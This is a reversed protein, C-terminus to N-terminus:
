AFKWCPAKIELLSTRKPLAHYNQTYVLILIPLKTDSLFRTTPLLFSYRYTSNRVVERDNRAFAPIWTCSPMRRLAHRIVPVSTVEPRRPPSKVATTSPRRPQFHDPSALSLFNGVATSCPRRVDCFEACPDTRVDKTLIDCLLPISLGHTAIFPGIERSCSEDM